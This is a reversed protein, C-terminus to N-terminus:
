RPAPRPTIESRTFFHGSKSNMAPKSDSNHVIQLRRVVLINIFTLHSDLEGGIMLM